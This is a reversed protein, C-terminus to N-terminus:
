LEGRSSEPDQFVIENPDCTKSEFIKVADSNQEDGPCHTVYEENLGRGSAQHSGARSKWKGQIIYKVANLACCKAHRKSRSM